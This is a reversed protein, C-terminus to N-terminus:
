EYMKGANRFARKIKYNKTENYLIEKQGGLMIGTYYFDRVNNNPKVGNFRIYRNMPNVTTLIISQYPLKELVRLNHSTFIFQGKASEYIIEILEGLLYEFIGSDFEDIMLCISPNNYMAILSSTVSIIRKIGESEYRLPIYKGNRKSVVEFGYGNSGDKMMQAKKNMIEINLTPVIANLVTDIQEIVKEFDAFIDEPLESPKLLNISIRGFKLSDQNSLYVNVPMRTNFNISGMLDNEIIIMSTKAYVSLIKLVDILKEENENELGSIIYSLNRPNFFFSSGVEIEKAVKLGIYNENSLKHLLKKLTIENNEVEFLTNIPLWKNKSHSYEKSTMKEYVIDYANDKNEQPQAIVFTYTVLQEFSSSKIYFTCEIKARHSENSIYQEIDKPLKEGSLVGKLIIAAEIATTKGSGNQGYIGLVSNFSDLENQKLKTLEDFSLEGHEVNKVGEIVLSELRVLEKM